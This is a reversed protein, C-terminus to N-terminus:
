QYKKNLTYTFDINMMRGMIIVWIFCYVGFPVYGLYGLTPMNWTYDINIYPVCYNWYGPNHTPFLEFKYSLHNWSEVCWGQLVWTTSFLILSTWDGREKISNFPTWIGLMGLVIVMIFLPSLWISFFLSNHAFPMSALLALALILAIIKATSSLEVKKGEKYMSNLRPFTRLLHYWEFAMPIFASSGVLAYLLFEDHNIQTAAPYFWNLGIFFNFYEFILWGSISLIGMAILEAAANKVLSKGGNRKYVIGDLMLIFGWWLPLLAWNVLWKPESLKLYFVILIATWLALGLWFWFPFGTHPTRSAESQIPPKKFGFLVPFFLLLLYLLFLTATIGIVFYNIMEKPAAELAPFHFFNPPLNGGERFLVSIYPTYFIVVVTALLIVAKRSSSM